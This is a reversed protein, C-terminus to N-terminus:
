LVTVAERPAIERLVKDLEDVQIPKALYGDMGASIYRERDGKMANATLAYILAHHRGNQERRRIEVTAEVGSMVPMQVDMLILDFIQTELLALVERGNVALAV